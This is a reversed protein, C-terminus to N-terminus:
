KGHGGIEAKTSPTFLPAPLEQSEQLGVPMPMDCVTGKFQYEKMASGTIYGRVIAEVPLISLRRVLMCRGELDRRYKQVSEPM